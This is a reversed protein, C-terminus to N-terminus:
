FQYYYAPGEFPQIAKKLALFQQTSQGNLLTTKLSLLDELWTTEAEYSYYWVNDWSVGTENLLMQLTTDFDAVGDILGNDAAQQATYIRGDALSRIYAEDLDRGQVIVDIFQDYCEDLISQMIAAQEDTVPEEISLMNKNSGSYFTTVKIGLKDLLGTMDVSSGMIVGIAGTLGNRNAYIEDATTAIYYAASAGYHAISAYIPRGTISKYDLLRQYVEDAEYVTGGPSDIYLLLGRNNKDYTADDIAQLLYNQNYTSGDDTSITGVINIVAVSDGIILGTSPSGGLGGSFGSVTAVLLVMIIFIVFGKKNNSM